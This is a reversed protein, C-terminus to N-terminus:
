EPMELLGTNRQFHRSTKSVGHSKLNEQPWCDRNSGAMNNCVLVTLRDKAVKVGREFRKKSKEVYTSDPLVRFYFGTEDANYINNPGYKEILEAVNNETWANAAKGDPEKFEGQVKGLWELEYRVKWSHFWGETASFDDYGM